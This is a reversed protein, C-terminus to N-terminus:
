LHKKKPGFNSVRGASDLDLFDSSILVPVLRLLSFPHSKALTYMLRREFSNSMPLFRVLALSEKKICEMKM